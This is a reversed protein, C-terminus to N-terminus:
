VCVCVDCRMANCPHSSVTYSDFEKLYTLYLRMAVVLQERTQEDAETNMSAGARFMEKMYKLGQQRHMSSSSKNVRKLIQRYHKLVEKSSVAATM